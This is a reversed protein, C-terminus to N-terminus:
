LFLFLPCINEPEKCVLMCMVCEDTQCFSMHIWVCQTLVWTHGNRPMILTLDIGAHMQRVGRSQFQSFWRRPKRGSVELVGRQFTCTSVSQPRFARGTSAEERETEICRERDYYYCVWLVLSGTLGACSKLEFLGRTQMEVCSAFWM